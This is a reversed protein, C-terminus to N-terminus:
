QKEDDWEKRMRQCVPSQIDEYSAMSGDPMKVSRSHLQKDCHVRLVLRVILECHTLYEDVDRFKDWDCEELVEEHRAEFWDRLHVGCEVNHGSTWDDEKCYDSCYRREGCACTLPMETQLKAFCSGCREQKHNEKLTSVLPSERLVVDGKNFSAMR